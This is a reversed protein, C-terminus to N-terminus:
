YCLGLIDKVAEGALMFGAAAPVFVASAPIHRGATEGQVLPRMPEEPSFVVKLKTVNRSKLERRMVRALPCNRTKFLDTVQLKDASLKNGTGMCSIIPTGSERAALVLAIKATVTDVADIVYDYQSFDFNEATEPSFFVPHLTLSIDPNISKARKAAAETKSMGLTEHTALIQRNLNSIDICDSDTLDLHGVGSRVLAEVAYGGVGGLGFLAVRSHSLKDINEEGILNIIRSFQENM